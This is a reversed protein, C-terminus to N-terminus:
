KRLMQQFGKDMDSIKVRNGERNQFMWDETRGEEEVMIELWRGVWRRIEIGLGTTDVLTLIHWKEGTEGKFRHKLAVMAHSQNRGLRTEERFNM